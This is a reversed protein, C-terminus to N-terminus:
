GSLTAYRSRDFASADSSGHGFYDFLIIRYDREFEPVLYQWMSQDCGYGHTLM